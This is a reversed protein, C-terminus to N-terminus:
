PQVTRLPGSVQEKWGVPSQFGTGQVRLEDRVRDLDGALLRERQSGWPPHLSLPLTHLHELLPVRTGFPRSAGGETSQSVQVERVDVPKTSLVVSPSASGVLHKLIDKLTESVAKTEAAREQWFFVLWGIMEYGDGHLRVPLHSSEEGCGRPM